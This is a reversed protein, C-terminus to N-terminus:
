KTDNLKGRSRSMQIAVYTATGGGVIASAPPSLLYIGFLMIGFGVFAIIDTAIDLM